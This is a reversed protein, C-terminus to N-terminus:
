DRSGEEDGRRLVRGQKARGPGGCRPPLPRPAGGGGPRAPASLSCPRAATDREHTLPLGGRAEASQQRRFPVATNISTFRRQLELLNEQSPLNLHCCSEPSLEFLM